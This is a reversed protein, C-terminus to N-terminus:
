YRVSCSMYFMMSERLHILLLACYMQMELRDHYRVPESVVALHLWGIALM